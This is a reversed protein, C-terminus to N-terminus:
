TKLKQLAIYHTYQINSNQIVTHKAAHWRAYYYIFLYIFFYYYYYYYDVKHDYSWTACYPLVTSFVFFCAICFVFM